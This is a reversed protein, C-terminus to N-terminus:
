ILAGTSDGLMDPTTAGRRKTRGRHENAIRTAYRHPPRGRCSDHGKLLALEERRFRIALLLGTAAGVPLGRVPSRSPRAGAMSAKRSVGSKNRIRPLGGKCRPNGRKYQSGDRM